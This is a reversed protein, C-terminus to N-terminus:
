KDHALIFICPLSNKGPTKKVTRWPFHARCLEEKDHARCLNFRVVIM